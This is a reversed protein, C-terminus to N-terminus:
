PGGHCYGPGLEREWVVRNPYGRWIRRHEGALNWYRDDTVGLDDSQPCLTPPGYARTYRALLRAYLSDRHTPRTAVLHQVQLVQREADLTLIV